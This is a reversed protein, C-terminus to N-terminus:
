WKETDIIRVEDHAKAKQVLVERIIAGGLALGILFSIWFTMAKGEENNELEWSRQDM